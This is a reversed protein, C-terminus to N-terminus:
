SIEVADFLNNMKKTCKKWIILNRYYYNNNTQMAKKKSDLMHHILLACLHEIFIYTFPYTNCAIIIFCNSLPLSRCFQKYTCRLPWVFGQVYKTRILIKFNSIQRLFNLVYIEYFENLFFHTAWNEHSRWTIM